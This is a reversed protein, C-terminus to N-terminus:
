VISRLLLNYNKEAVSSEIACDNVVSIYARVSEAGLPAWKDVFGLIIKKSEENDEISFRVLEKSWRVHRELDKIQSDILLSLLLDNNQKSTAALPRLVGELVAPITVVCLSIFAETWDYTVLNKEILFRFSQFGDGVEWADRENKGFGMEPFNVSLEHTRYATHTTLRLFDATQFTACNTITSAPAMQSLYSSSMQLSHFLYKLPTYIKVLEGLWESDIQFDHQREDFQDFLSMVHSEQGDQVLNYTRYVLGDPDTFDDWCNNKLTSNNRYKKYWINMPATPSLEWPSEPNNTSYHLKRSVVDYESPKKRGGALHSWTRLPKQNEVFSM